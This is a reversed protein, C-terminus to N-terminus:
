VKKTFFKAMPITFYGINAGIDLVIHGKSIKLSELYYEEERLRNKTMLFPLEKSFGSDNPNLYLEYSGYGKLHIIVLQTKVESLLCNLCCSTIFGCFKYPLSWVNNSVISIVERIGKRM